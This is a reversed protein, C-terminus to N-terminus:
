SKKITITFRTGKELESEVSIQWSHIEMITKVVSLGIGMGSERRSASGRYFLDFIHKEDEKSLGIGSDSIKIYINKEDESADLFITDNEKTYRIANSFINELARQALLSNFPLSINQSLTNQLKVERKFITGTTLANKFFDNIFKSFDRDNLENKWDKTDLKIYDLLTNIMLELQSTRDLIIKIAEKGQDGATIVGDSLAEAYGKIVAVPTRLDHSVGMIFRSKKEQAEILDKRMTEISESIIKLEDDPYESEKIEESLNGKAIKHTQRVLKDISKLISQSIVCIGVISIILIIAIISYLIGIFFSANNKSLYSKKIRTLLHIDLDENPSDSIHLTEYQFIYNHDQAKISQLIQGEEIEDNIKINKESTLLVKSDRLLIYDVGRPIRKTIKKLLNLEKQSFNESETESLKSILILNENDIKTQYVIIPIFLCCLVPILFVCAIYIFLQNKIKM